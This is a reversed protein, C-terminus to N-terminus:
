KQAGQHCMGPQCNSNKVKCAVCEKPWIIEPYPMDPDRPALPDWRHSKADEKATNQYKEIIADKKMNSVIAILTVVIAYCFLATFYGDM